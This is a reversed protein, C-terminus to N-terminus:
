GDEERPPFKAIKDPADRRGAAELARSAAQSLDTQPGESLRVLLVTSEMGIQGIADVAAIRVQMANDFEALRLLTELSEVIRQRGAARAAFYRVWPDSDDLALKLL